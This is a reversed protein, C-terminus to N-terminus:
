KPHAISDSNMHYLLGTSSTMHEESPAEKYGPNTLLAKETILCRILSVFSPDKFFLRLCFQSGFLYIPNKKEKWKIRCSFSLPILHSFPVLFPNMTRLHCFLPRLRNGFKRCLGVRHCISTICMWTAFKVEFSSLASDLYCLRRSATRHRDSSSRCLVWRRCCHFGKGVCQAKTGNHPLYVLIHGWNKNSKFFSKARQIPLNKQGAAWAVKIVTDRVM